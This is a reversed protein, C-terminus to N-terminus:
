LRKTEQKQFLITIKNRHKEPIKVLCPPSFHDPHEHSFWIHTIDKFDNYNIQSKSLLSWGNDFANYEIWPDCILKILNHSLIFSAHNVWTIEM